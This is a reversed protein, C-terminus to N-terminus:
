GRYALGAAGLCGLALGGIALLANNHTEGLVAAIMGVVGAVLFPFLPLPQSRSTAMYFVAFGLSGLAALVLLVVVITLLPDNPQGPIM